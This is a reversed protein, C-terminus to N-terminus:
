DGQTNIHREDVPLLSGFRLLVAFISHEKTVSLLCGRVASLDMSLNANNLIM